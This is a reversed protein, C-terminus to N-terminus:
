HIQVFVSPEITAFHSFLCSIWNAIWSVVGPKFENAKMLKTQLDEQSLPLELHRFVRCNIVDGQCSSEYGLGLAGFRRYNSSIQCKGIDM